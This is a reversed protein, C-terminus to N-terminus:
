PLIEQSLRLKLGSLIFLLCYFQSFADQWIPLSITWASIAAAAALLLMYTKAANISIIGAPIPRDPHNIKDARADVIDNIVNGYGVSCISSIALLILTKVSNGANSLWFGLIAAVATMIANGPRIIKFFATINVM